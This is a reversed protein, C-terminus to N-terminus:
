LEPEEGAVIIVRSGYRAQYYADLADILKRAGMVTEGGERLRVARAAQEVAMATSRVRSYPRASGGDSGHFRYTM